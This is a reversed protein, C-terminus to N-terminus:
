LLEDLLPSPLGRCRGLSTVVGSSMAAAPGTFWRVLSESSVRCGQSRIATWWSLVGVCVSPLVCCGGCRVSAGGDTSKLSGGGRFAPRPSRREM